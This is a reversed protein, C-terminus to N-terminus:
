PGTQRLPLTFSFRSGKGKTSVVQIKGGHLEVIKKAIALGLGSSPEGGTPAPGLKSFYTFIQSLDQKSLGQGTDEVHTTVADAGIEVSVTVKGGPFTYKVANSLLNDLVEQVRNRDFSFKVPEGPPHFRIEIDKDRALRRHFLISERLLVGYSQVQRNLQLKGSEIASIDLLKDILYNMKEINKLSIQLDRLFRKQNFTEKRISRIALELYGQIGILPNRLDHVTMGLLQNKKDDLLRLEELVRAKSYASIIHERLNGLFRADEEEFANEVQLNQFFLYGENESDITIEMMLLSRAVPLYGVKDRGSRGEPEKVIRVGELVERSRDLYRERIEAQGLIIRPVGTNEWGEAAIVRFKRTERDKALALARQVGPIVRTEKLIAGMLRKLGIEENMTKVITNIKELQRTKEELDFTRERVKSELRNRQMRLGRLRLRFAVLISLFILVLLLIKFPLSDYFPPSVRIKLDLERQDWVGDANAAKVLLDYRGPNLGTLTLTNQEGLHVWERNIGQIRYAYRNKGPYFYSLASFSFSLMKDRHTININRIEHLPKELTVKQNLIRFDSLVLHAPYPIKRIKEPAFFTVGKVSGFYMRGGRGQYYAGANFEYTPLGHIHNFNQFEGKQIDFRSIGKNTSLWLHGRNDQLIGYVVDNALGDRSTFHTFVERAPDFRNLGGGGTGIWLAENKGPLISFVSNSSIGRPQGVDYTYRWFDGSPPDYRNLGGNSLGLWYRERSDRAMATVSGPGLSRPDAPDHWHHTFQGSAKDMLTLGRETGIWLTGSGDDMMCYIIKGMLKDAFPGSSHPYHLFDGRERRYVSLGEGESGVWMRYSNRLDPLLVRINPSKLRTSVTLRNPVDRHLFQRTEGTERNIVNIGGYGGIWLRGQDDETISRISSFTLGGSTGPKKVLTHFEKFSPILSLVGYEDLGVWLIGTPDCFIDRILTRRRRSSSDNVHFFSSFSGTAPNYNRLGSSLYSIWLTRNPRDWSLGSIYGKGSGRYRDDTMDMRNLSEGDASMWALGGGATGIWLRGQDDRTLATVHSDPLRQSNEGRPYFHKWVRYMEGDWRLGILGQRETAMWVTGPETVLLRLVSGLNPGLPFPRGSPEWPLCLRQKRTNYTQLGGRILGVLLIGSRPDHALCSIPFNGRRDMGESYENCRRFNEAAPDYRNLRGSRTGIWLYYREQECIATINNGSLSAPDAFDFRHVRFEKGDYRNLGDQTGFWMYGVHDQFIKYVFDHSLGDESTLNIARDLRYPNGQASMLGTFALLVVAAVMGTGLFRRGSFQVM